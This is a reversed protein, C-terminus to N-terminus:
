NISRISLQLILNSTPPNICRQVVTLVTNVTCACAYNNDLLILSTAHLMTLLFAIGIAATVGTSITDGFHSFNPTSNTLLLRYYFFMTMSQEINRGDVTVDRLDCMSRVFM